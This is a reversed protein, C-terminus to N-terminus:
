YMVAHSSATAVKAQMSAAASEIDAGPSHRDTLLSWILDDDFRLTCMMVNRAAVRVLQQPSFQMILDAVSESLGLRFMAQPKDERIMAQALMLYSLNTDRIDNLLKSFM